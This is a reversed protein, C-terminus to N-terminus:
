VYYRISRPILFVTPYSVSVLDVLILLTIYPPYQWLYYLFVAGKILHLLNDRRMLLKGAIGLISDNRQYHM